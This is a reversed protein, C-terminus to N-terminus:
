VVKILSIDVVLRLLCHLKIFFDDMLNNAYERVYKDM